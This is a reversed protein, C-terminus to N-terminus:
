RRHDSGARCRRGTRWRLRHSARRGPHETWAGVHRQSPGVDITLEREDAPVSLTLQGTAYAPRVPLDPDVEGGASRPATGVVEFQLGIGPIDDSTVPISVIASGSDDFEFTQTRDISGRSIVLLGHADVFPSQVLIEATDGPQFTEGSPILTLQELDVTRSTPADGGAVWRTLETLNQRENDDVVTAAIRYRGGESPRFTCVTPDDGSTIECTEDPVEVEEWTGNQFRWELRISEVTVPRDAVIEGDIDTVIVDLDLREGERVFTRTGRLGVYLESPHVLATATGTIPQRNVDTVTAAASVSVPRPKGETDITIALGHLGAADTRSTFTEVTGSGFGGDFGRFSDEFGGGFSLWWPVWVGFTYDPWNPPSYSTASGSVTWDVPSAGLPGGAFYSATADVRFTEDALYPGSDTVSAKVEFDPRRFEQVQFQHWYNADGVGSLATTSFQLGGSGLTIDRPLEFEIDFGGLPSLTAEGTGIPNGFADTASWTVTGNERPLSLQSPISVDSQRIWGKVRVTEGPKYLGRDDTVYWRAEDSRDWREAYFDGILATQGEAEVILGRAPRPLPIRVVGDADTTGTDGGIMEVEAGEVAEGTTLDTVWAIADANDTIADLGLTTRQVWVAFPQNLWDEDRRRTPSVVVVVHGTSELSASLDLATEHFENPKSGTPVTRDDVLEWDPSYEGISLPFGNEIYTQWDARPDVRYVKVLLEDNNISTISLRQDDVVPDLTVLSTNPRFLGPDADGVEFTATADDELQQGYIDRLGARLTVTYTTRGATRGNLTVEYTNVGVQLAPIAPDVSIMDATFSEPEIPNSLVLSLPQGPQCREDWGCRTEIIRLPGYTRGSYTFVQDSTTPGEASPTAPGITLQIAADTPLPEVPRIVMSREPLAAEVLPAVVTDELVEEGEALRVEVSEGDATLTIVDLVAEPDVRQDFQIFFLPDTRMSESFPAVATVTPAPTSFSFSVEEALEAGNASMTGADITVTYTTAAPIRDIAGPEYEFRVTRTGLWIWRGPMEPTITIPVDAAEVQDVTSLAVMPQNFTVSIFPALDVPGEPQYRLVELEGPAVAEVDPSGEAPFVQDITTGPRPRPRTDPPRNFDLQDATEALLEPLRELLAASEEGGLPSGEVTTVRDNDPTEAGEVEALDILVTTDSNPGDQSARVVTVGQTSAEGTGQGSEGDASPTADPDESAEPPDSSCSSALVCLAIFAAIVHRLRRSPLPNHQM